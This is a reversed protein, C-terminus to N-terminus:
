DLAAADKSEEAHNWATELALIRGEEKSTKVREPAFVLLSMTFCLAGASILAKM